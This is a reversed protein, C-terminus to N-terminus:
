GDNFVERLQDVRNRIRDHFDVAKLIRATPSNKYKRFREKNKLIDEFVELVFRDAHDTMIARCYHASTIEHSPDVVISRRSSALYEYMKGFDHMLVLLAAENREADTFNGELTYVAKAASVIHDYLSIRAAADYENPNAFSSVSLGRVSPIHRAKGDRLDEFIMKLYKVKLGKHAFFLLDKLFIGDEGEQSFDLKGIVKMGERRNEQNPLRAAHVSRDIHQM